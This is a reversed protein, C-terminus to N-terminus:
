TKRGSAANLIFELPTRAQAPYIYPDFLGHDENRGRINLDLIHNIAHGLDEERRIHYVASAEVPGTGDIEYASIHQYRGGGGYLLVPIRNQLAEEITTSSFSVLLDATRLVDSFSGGTSLIVKQSFPVINRLDDVSLEKVPRFRVILFTDPTKEIVDALRCVAQIYEDPTEYVFFRSSKSDKPTAAHVVVKKGELAHNGYINHGNIQRGWVLPGTKVVKGESPFVDLYGEALPSQLALYSFPARILGVGHEGWEIRELDNKPRVHSGHSILVTLIGKDRCLEALAMDDMRNGESLVALPKVMGFFRDIRILWMIQSIVFNSLNGKIKNSVLGAFSVGKYSFTATEKRIMEALRDLGGMQKFIEASYQRNLLRIIFRPIPSFYLAPQKFFYQKNRIKNNLEEKIRGMNHRATLFVPDSGSFISRLLVIYGWISFDIYRYFLKAATFLRGVATFRVGRRKNRGAIDIFKLGKLRAINELVQGLYNEEPEMYVSGVAKSKGLSASIAEPDHREIVNLAIEVNRLCYQISMRIFFLLSNKLSGHLGIGLDMTEFNGKLWRILRDSEKLLNKHSDNTFYSLTNHAEIGKQKLYSYVSPTMAIFLEKADPSHVNGENELYEDVESADYFFNARKVRNM